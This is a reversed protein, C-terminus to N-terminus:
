GVGDTMMAGIVLAFVLTVVTVLAPGDSLWVVANDEGIDRLEYSEVKSSILAVTM